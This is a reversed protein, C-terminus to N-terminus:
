RMVADRSGGGTWRTRRGGLADGRRARGLGRGSAIVPMTERGEPEEVRLTGEPYSFFRGAWAQGECKPCITAAGMQEECFEAEFVLRCGKRMCRYVTMMRDETVAGLEMRREETVRMDSM